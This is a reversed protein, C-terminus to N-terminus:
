YKITEVCQEKAGLYRERRGEDPQRDVKHTSMKCPWWKLVERGWRGDTRRAIQGAWQWKLKSIGQAM